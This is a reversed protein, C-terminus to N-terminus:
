YYQNSNGYLSKILKFAGNTLWKAQSQYGARLM